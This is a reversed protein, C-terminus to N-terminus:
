AQAARSVDMSSIEVGCLQETIAKVKRTAVGQVYREAVALKLARESRAGKDLAQPYFDGDRVQPVVLKLMGVRTKVTKDKFGDAYGQRDQSRENPSLVEISSVSLRM